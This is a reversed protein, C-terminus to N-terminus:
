VGGQDEGSLDELTTYVVKLESQKVTQVFHQLVNKKQDSSGFLIILRFFEGRNSHM